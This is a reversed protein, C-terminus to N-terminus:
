GKINDKKDGLKHIEGVRCGCRPCFEPKGLYVKKTVCDM